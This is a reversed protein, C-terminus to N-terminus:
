ITLCQDIEREVLINVIDEVLDGNPADQSQSHFEVTPSHLYSLRNSVVSSNQLSNEKNNFMLEMPDNTAFEGQSVNDIDAESLCEM